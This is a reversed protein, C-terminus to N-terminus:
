NRLERWQIYGNLGYFMAQIIGFFGCFMKTEFQEVFYRGYQFFFNCFLYSINQM